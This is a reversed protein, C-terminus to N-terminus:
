TVTGEKTKSEVLFPPTSDENDSFTSSSSLDDDELSPRKRPERKYSRETVVTHRSHVQRSLRSGLRGNHIVKVKPEKFEKESGNRVVGNSKDKVVEVLEKKKYCAPLTCSLVRILAMVMGTLVLIPGIMRLQMTKFGKEGLGVFTIILGIAVTGLGVYLLINLNATM